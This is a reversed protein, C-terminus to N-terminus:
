KMLIMKKVFNSKETELRYFYVGTNVPNGDDTNGNWTITKRGATEVGDVLTKVKQGLVNFVALSVTGEQPVDYTITTNANFPNPVNQYLAFATPIIPAEGVLKLMYSGPNLSVPGNSLDVINQANYLILRQDDPLNGTGTLSIEEESLINLTWEKNESNRIDTSLRGIEADVLYADFGSGPIAPPLAMDLGVDYADTANDDLGLTLVTNNIDISYTWDAKQRPVFSPTSRMLGADVTVECFPWPSPVRVYIFYGVGAKVSNASMYTRAEADYCFLLGEYLSGTPYQILDAFPVGAFNYVGGFTNWGTPMNVTLNTVPVGPISYSVPDLDMSFVFYAVGPEIIEPVVYGAMTFVYIMDPDVTPFVGELSNDAPVVPIAVFNWGPYLTIFSRSVGINIIETESFAYMNTTRMDIMDNIVFIYGEPLMDPDWHLIGSNAATWVTWLPDIDELNRLDVLLKRSDLVFTPLVSTPVDVDIGFDFGATAELNAGMSIVQRLTDWTSDTSDVMEFLLDVMWGPDVFFEFTYDLFNPDPCAFPVNDAVRMNVIINRGGLFDDAFTATNLYVCNGDWTVDDSLADFVYLTLTDTWVNFTVTNWNIGSPDSLCIEIQTLNYSVTEGNMPVSHDVVPPTLDVYFMGILPSGAIMNGLMDSVQVLSFHVVEGDMFPTTPTFIMHNLVDDYELQPSAVNYLRGQCIFQISAPDIPNVDILEIIIQQHACSSYAGYGPEVITPNPASGDITFEWCFPADMLPNPYLSCKYEPMDYAYVVCAEVHQGDRFTRGVLEGDFVLLNGFLDIGVDHPSYYIGNVMINTLDPDVRGCVADHLEISVTPYPGKGFGSDPPFPNEPYPGSLDVIYSWEIPSHELPNGLGDEAAILVINIEQADRYPPMHTPDFFVEAGEPTPVVVLPNYALIIPGGPGPVTYNYVTTNDYIVGEVELLITGSAIGNPDDLYFHIMQHDCASYTANLPYDPNFFPGNTVYFQWNVREQLHNPNCFDIYDLADWVTVYITDGQGFFLGFDEPILEYKNSDPYWQLWPWFPDIGLFEWRNGSSSEVILFISFPDVFGDDDFITFWIREQNDITTYDDPPYYDVVYPGTKDVVITWALTYMSSYANDFSDIVEILSVNIVQGDYFPPNPIFELIGTFVDFDLKPSDITYNVGDVNLIISSPVIGNFDEIFFGIHQDFCSTYVTDDYWFYPYLAEVTPPQADVMFYWDNIPLNDMDNPRYGYDPLDKMDRLDVDVSDMLSYTIGELAPYFSILDVIMTDDLLTDVYMVDEEFFLGPNATTYLVGNIKVEITAPNIEGFDDTVYIFIPEEIDTTWFPFLEYISGPMRGVMYPGSLDVIFSSTVITDLDTTDDINFTVFLSDNVLLGDTFPISPQFVLNPAVWTLERDTLTFGTGNVKLIISSPDVMAPSDFNYRIQQLPDSTNSGDFPEVLNIGQALVVCSFLAVFLLGVISRQIM